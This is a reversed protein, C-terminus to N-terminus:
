GSVVCKGWEMRGMGEWGDMGEMRARVGEGNM